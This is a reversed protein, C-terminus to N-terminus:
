GNAGDGVGGCAVIFVFMGIDKGEIGSRLGRRGGSMLWFPRFFRGLV